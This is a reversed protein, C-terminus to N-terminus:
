IHILSLGTSSGIRLTVETSFETVEAKSLINREQLASRYPRQLTQSPELLQQFIDRLEITGKDAPDLYEMRYPTATLGLVSSAPNFQELCALILKYTPAAGRHAEDIVVLGASCISAATRKSEETFLDKFLNNVRQPTSILIQPDPSRLVSQFQASRIDKTFKGWLRVLDVQPSDSVLEWTTRADQAAQECLEESHALWLVTDNNKGRKSLWSRIVEMAVRTKGAGTPLELIARGADQEAVRLAKTLAEQQYDQLHPMSPKGILTEIDPREDVFAKGAFELPFGLRCVFNRASERGREWRNPIDSDDLGAAEGALKRRQSDAFLDRNYGIILAVAADRTRLSRMGDEANRQGSLARELDGLMQKLQPSRGKFVELLRELGALQWDSLSPQKATEGALTSAVLKCPEDNHLQSPTPSVISSFSDAQNPSITM